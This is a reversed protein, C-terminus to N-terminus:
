VGGTDTIETKGSLDTGAADATVTSIQMGSLVMAASLLCSLWKKKSGGM